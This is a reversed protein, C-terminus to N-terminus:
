DTKAAPAPKSDSKSDSKAAGSDPKAETKPAGSDSKAADSGARGYDTLYFGSGKFQLGPASMLRRVAGGCVEHTTLPSDSFKQRVEFKTDCSQCHYEYLPM